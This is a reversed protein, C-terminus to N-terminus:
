NDRDRQTRAIALQCFMVYFNIEEICADPDGQSVEFELGFVFQRQHEHPPIIRRIWSRVQVSAKGNPTTLDLQLELQDGIEMSEAEPHEISIRIGRTSVDQLQCTKFPIKSKANRDISAKRWEARAPASAVPVVRFHRRRNGSTVQEPTEVRLVPIPQGSISKIHTRDVVRSHFLYISGDNMFYIRLPDGTGLPMPRGQKSPVDILLAGDEKAWSRLCSKGAAGVRGDAELQEVQLAGNESALRELLRASRADITRKGFSLM